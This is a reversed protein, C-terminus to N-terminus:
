SQPPSFMHRFSYYSLPFSPISTVPLSRSESFTDWLCNRLAARRAFPRPLYFAPWIMKYWALWGPKFIFIASFSHPAMQHRLWHRYLSEWFFYWAACVARSAFAAPPPRLCSSLERYWISYFFSNLADLMLFRMTDASLPGMSLPLVRRGPTLAIIHPRLTM